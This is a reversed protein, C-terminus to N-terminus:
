SRPPHRGRMLQVARRATHVPHRVASVIRRRVSLNRRHHAVREPVVSETVPHGPLVDALDSAFTTFLALHARQLSRWDRRNRATVSNEWQRYRVGVEAHVGIPYRAAVHLYLYQDEDGLQSATQAHHRIQPYIEPRLFVASGCGPQTDRWDLWEELLEGPGYVGPAPARHLFSQDPSEPFWVFVPGYSMAVDVSDWFELHRELYTNDWLDDSDLLAIVDGRAHEVALIRSANIGRHSDGEHNLLQLRSGAAGVYRTVIDRTRDTSGDDVVVVEWDSLTQALVSEITAGIHTEGNLVAIVVSVRPSALAGSNM